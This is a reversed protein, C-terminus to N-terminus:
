DNASTNQLDEVELWVGGEPRLTVIM